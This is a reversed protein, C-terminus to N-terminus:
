PCKLEKRETITFMNCNLSRNHALWVMLRSIYYQKSFLVILSNKNGLSKTFLFPFVVIVFSKHLLAIYYKKKHEFGTYSEKKQPICTIYKSFHSLKADVISALATWQEFYRKHKAYCITMCTLFLMLTLLHYIKMM